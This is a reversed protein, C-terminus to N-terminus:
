PFGPTEGAKVRRYFAKMAGDLRYYVDALLKGYVQKLEPDHEKSQQLSRKTEYLDWKQGDRLKMVHWNYLGRCKGQMFELTAADQPSVEIKIKTCLLM